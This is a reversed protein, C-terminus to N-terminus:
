EFMRNGLYPIGFLRHMFGVPDEDAYTLGKNVETKIQNISSTLRKEAEILANAVRENIDLQESLLGLAYTAGIGVIVVAVMPGVAVMATGTFVASVAVWAFTGATVASVVDVTVGAVFHHWTVADNMLQDLAHFAVSFLVSVLVGGGVKSIAGAKGVGMSVVKPNLALYRSATLHQRLGAYGNIVVYAKGSHISVRYKTFYSGGKKLDSALTGLTSLDFAVATYAGVGKILDRHEMWHRKTAESLTASSQVVQDIWSRADQQSMGQSVKVAVAYDLFEDVTFAVLTTDNKNLTAVLQKKRLQEDRVTRRTRLNPQTM